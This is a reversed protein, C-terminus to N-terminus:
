PRVVSSVIHASWLLAYLYVGHYGARIWDARTAKWPHEIFGDRRNLRVRIKSQVITMRSPWPEFRGYVGVFTWFLYGALLGTALILNPGILEVISM